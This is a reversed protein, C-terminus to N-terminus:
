LGMHLMQSYFTARTLTIQKNIYLEFLNVGAITDFLTKINMTSHLRLNPYEEM